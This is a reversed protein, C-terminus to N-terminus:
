SLLHQEVATANELRLLAIQCIGRAGRDRVTASVWWAGRHWFLRCDEFGSVPFPPLDVRFAADDIPTTERIDLDPSLTLLYNTTRIVEGEDHITYRLQRSMSYNSSRVILHLGDGDPDAAISPNFRSWGEPVDLAIPQRTASPALEGLLPAYFIANRRVLLDVNEPLSDVSLLRECADRGESLKGQYFADVTTQFSSQWWDTMDGARGTGDKDM